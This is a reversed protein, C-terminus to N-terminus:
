AEAHRRSESFYLVCAMLLQGGGFTAGMQWPSLPAADSGSMLAMMGAGLYYCAVWIVSSTVFPISAFIGLAFLIAWIGPLLPISEPHFQSIGWTMIGGGLLSPFFQQLAQCTLRREIRSESRLYSLGVELLMLSLSAVAISSWLQIYADPHQEPVPVLWPQVAAAFLGLLGTAAVTTPRYGRFRETRVIQTWILDIQAAAERYEM